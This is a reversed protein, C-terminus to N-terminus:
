TSRSRWELLREQLRRSDIVERNVLPGPVRGSAAELLSGLAELGTKRFCEDTCGLAHPTIMVNDLSYLPDDAPLPEPDTVDLGAGAIRRGALAATLAKQDHIPGRAVNVFYATPKMLAFQAEGM